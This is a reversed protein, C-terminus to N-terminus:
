YKVWFEGGVPISMLPTPILGATVPNASYAANQYWVIYADGFYMKIAELSMETQATYKNWGLARVPLVKLSPADEGQWATTINSVCTQTTPFALVTFPAKPLTGRFSVQYTHSDDAKAGVTKTWILKIVNGEADKELVAEGFVADMPRVPSEKSTFAAPISVEIKVTDYHKGAVDECGHPINLTALYRAGAYANNPAFGVHAQATAGWFYLALVILTHQLRRNM